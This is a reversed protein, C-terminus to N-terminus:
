PNFNAIPHLSILFPTRFYMSFIPTKRGALEAGLEKKIEKRTWKKHIAIRFVLPWKKSNMMKIAIKALDLCNQNKKKPASVAGM